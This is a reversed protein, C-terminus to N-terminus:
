TTEKHNQSGNKLTAIVIRMLLLGFGSFCVINLNFEAVACVFYKKPMYTADGCFVVFSLDHKEVVLVLVKRLARSREVPLLLAVYPRLYLDNQDHLYERDFTSGLARM